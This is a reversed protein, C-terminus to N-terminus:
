IVLRSHGHMDSPYECGDGADGKGDPGGSGLGDATGLERGETQPALHEAGFQRQHSGRELSAAVPASCHDIVPLMENVAM